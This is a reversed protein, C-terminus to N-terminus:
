AHEGGHPVSERRAEGIRELAELTEAVTRIMGALRQLDVIAGTTRCVVVGADEGFRRRSKRSPRKVELRLSPVSLIAETPQPGALLSPIRGEPRGKVVYRELLAKSVAPRSGFGLAEWIRDLVNRRRVTLTTGRWGVVYARVRTYTVTADGTSEVHLDLVISWPGHRVLMRDAGARKGPRFEGGLLTALDRWVERRDSRAPQSRGWRVPKM